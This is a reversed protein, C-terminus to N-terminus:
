NSGDNVGAKNKLRSLLDDGSISSDFPLDTAKFGKVSQANLEKEILSMPDQWGKPKLIKGFRPSDPDEDKIAKGDVLKSLNAQCVINIIPDLDIGCKAIANFMYYSIDVVGDVQEVLLHTTDESESTFAEDVESMEDLIMQKLFAWEARTMSRPSESCEASAKTFKKVKQFYTM